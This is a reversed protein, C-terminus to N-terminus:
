RKTEVFELWNGHAYAPSIWRGSPDCGRDRKAPMSNWFTSWPYARSVPKGGNMEGALLRSSEVVAGDGCGRRRLRGVVAQVRCGAVQGRVGPVETGEM